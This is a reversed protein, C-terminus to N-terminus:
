PRGASFLFETGGVAFMEGSALFKRLVKAKGYRTGTESYLDHLCLRDGNLIIHAHYESIQPDSLQITADSSCGIIMGEDCVPIALGIDPGSIVEVKPSEEDPINRTGAEEDGRRVLLLTGGAHILDNHRLESKTITRGNVRTGNRSKLDEVLLLDGDAAIRFHKRSIKEDSIAIDNEDSRGFTYAGAGIPYERKTEGKRFIFLRTRPAQLTTGEAIGIIANIDAILKSADTYRAAPDRELLKLAIDSLQPPIKKNIKHPPPPDETLRRRVTEIIADGVLPYDGTLMKYFVVGLAYFDSRSDGKVGKFCEPAMFLPTGVMRGTMTLGTPDDVERALGFDAVKADGEPTIMINAPKLDRHAIGLAHAAGLAGAVQRVIEAAREPELSSDGELMQQLSVGPVYEMELFYTGSDNGVNYVAVINPHDIKRALRGEREFRAVVKRDAAHASSLIKVVCVRDAEINRAKYVVGMSGAGLREILECGGLREGPRM